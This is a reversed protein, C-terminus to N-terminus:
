CLDDDAVPNPQDSVLKGVIQHYFVYRRPASRGGLCLGAIALRLLTNRRALLAQRLKATVAQLHRRGGSFGVFVRAASQAVPIAALGSFEPCYSHGDRNKYGIIARWPGTM